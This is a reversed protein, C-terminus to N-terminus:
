KVIKAFDDYGETIVRNIEKVIESITLLSGRSRKVIDKWAKPNVICVLDRMLSFVAEVDDESERIKALQAEYEKQNSIYAKMVEKNGIDFSYLCKKGNPWEVEVTKITSKVKM